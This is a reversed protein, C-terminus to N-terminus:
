GAARIGNRAFGQDNTVRVTKRHTKTKKSKKSQAVIEAVTELPDKSPDFIEDLDEDWQFSDDDLYLEEETSSERSSSAPSGDKRAM